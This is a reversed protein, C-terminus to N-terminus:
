FWNMSINGCLAWKLNDSSDRSTQLLVHKYVYPKMWLGCNELLQIYVLCNCWAFKTRVPINWSAESFAFCVIARLTKFSVDSTNQNVHLAPYLSCVHVLACHPHAFVEFPACGGGVKLILRLIIIYAAINHLVSRSHLLPILTEPKARMISDHAPQASMQNSYLLALAKFASPPSLDAQGSECSGGLTAWWPDQPYDLVCLTPKLVLTWAITRDVTHACITFSIHIWKREQWTCVVLSCTTQM